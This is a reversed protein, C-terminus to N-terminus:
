WRLWILVSGILVLLPVVTLGLKFYELTSVELGKRRLILLWLMTALSGVTTLNPGLDAGLIIAYALAPNALAVGSVSRLASIMVLTMPVNNILNAGLASGGATLLIAGLPNGGALSLLANGFAATLGLDEVGRVLIFMGTIFGFLSWSIERRLKKWELRHLYLAGASLLGTGGLAVFSLPLRMASAVIYALAILGLGGLTFDFYARHPPEFPALMHPDYSIKLDYRYRWVFVGINLAISLLSPLLLYHLFTCLDIHFEDVVLINIPNSVPLLFSATDAIFTCAFMFPLVRLRLRTILAYVVPTLILATGDNSLFVTLVAGAIFLVLYLRRASGQGWKGAQYAVWEFIGAQDALASLTMLGLFFGYVNWQRSLVRLAENPHVIGVLLMLMAGVLASVAEPVRYPRIMIFALTAGFILTGLVFQFPHTTLLM